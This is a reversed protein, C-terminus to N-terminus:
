DEDSEDITVPPQSKKATVLSSGSKREADRQRQAAEEATELSQVLEKSSANSKSLTRLNTQLYVLMNVNDPDLKIREDSVVNGAVSFLRESSASTAPVCYVNRAMESLLPLRVKQENWWQLVDVDRKSIPASQFAKFELEIPSITDVRGAADPRVKNFESVLKDAYSMEEDDDEDDSPHSAQLVNENHQDFSPHNEIIHRSTSEFKDFSRLVAGSIFFCDYTNQL